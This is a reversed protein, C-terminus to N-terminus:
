GGGGGGRGGGGGGGGGKGGGGKGGGGKGGGGGGGGTSSAPTGSGQSGTGQNQSTTAPTTSSVLTTLQFSQEESQVPYYVTVDLQTVTNVKDQNWTQQSMTWHYGPWDTGFDGSGASSSQSTGDALVENMRNEALEGAISGREAVESAKSSLKLGAVIAPVLIALFVMAAFVEVFTFAERTKGPTSFPRKM